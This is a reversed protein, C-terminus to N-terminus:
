DLVRNQDHTGVVVALTADQRQQCQNTRAPGFLAPPTGYYDHNPEKPRGQEVAVARDRRSNGDETSQFTELDIGRLHPPENHRESDHDKGQQEKDLAPARGPDASYESWDHQDPEDHYSNQSDQANGLRRGDESGETRQGRDGVQPMGPWQGQRDDTPCEQRDGAALGEVGVHTM